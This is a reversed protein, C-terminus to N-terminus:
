QPDPELPCPHIEDTHGHIQRRPLSRRPNKMNQQAVILSSRFYNRLILYFAFWEDPSNLKYISLPRDHRERELVCFAVLFRPMGLSQVIITEPVFPPDTPQRVLAALQDALVELRNSHYVILM